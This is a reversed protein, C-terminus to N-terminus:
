VRRNRAPTASRSNGVDCAPNGKCSLLKLDVENDIVAFAFGIRGCFVAVHVDRPQDGLSMLKAITASIIFSLSSGSTTAAAFAAAPV